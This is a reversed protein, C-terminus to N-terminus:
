LYKWANRIYGLIISDKKELKDNLAQEAVTSNPDNKSGWIWLEVLIPILEIGKDTLSYFKMKKHKEYPKVKILGYAELMKLRDSLVNTAIGEGAKLFDKFFHKDALAIDRLILMTWQDGLLELSFSIPCSSRKKIKRMSENYKSLALITFKESLQM